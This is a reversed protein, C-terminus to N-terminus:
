WVINGYEMKKETIKEYASFGYIAYIPRCPGRVSPPPPRTPLEAEERLFVCKLSIYVFSILYGVLTHCLTMFMTPKSSLFFGSDKIKLAKLRDVTSNKYKAM